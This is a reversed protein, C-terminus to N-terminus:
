VFWMMMVACREGRRWCMWGLGFGVFGHVCGARAAAVFRGFEAVCAALDFVAGELAGLGIRVGVLKDAPTESVDHHSSRAATHTSDDHEERVLLFRAEGPSGDTLADRADVWFVLPVVLVNIYVVNGFESTSFMSRLRCMSALVGPGAVVQASCDLNHKVFVGAGVVFASVLCHKSRRLAHVVHAPTSRDNSEAPSESAAVMPEVKSAKLVHVHFGIGMQDAKEDAVAVLSWPMDYAQARFHVTHFDGALAIAATVHRSMLEYTHRTRMGNEDAFTYGALDRLHIRCRVRAALTM